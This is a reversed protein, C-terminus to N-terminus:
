PTWIIRSRDNNWTGWNPFDTINSPPIQREGPYRPLTEVETEEGYEDEEYGDPEVVVEIVAHRTRMEELGEEGNVNRISNAFANINRYARHVNYESPYQEAHTLIREVLDLNYEHVHAVVADHHEGRQEAADGDSIVVQIDYQLAVENSVEIFYEIVETATGRADRRETGSEFQISVFVVPGTNWFVSIDDVQDLTMGFNETATMWSNELDQINEMRYGLALTGTQQRPTIVLLDIVHWAFYATILLMIVTYVHRFKLWKKGKHQKRNKEMM